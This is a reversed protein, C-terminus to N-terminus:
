ENKKWKELVSQRLRGVYENGRAVAHPDKTPMTRVFELLPAAKAGLRDIANMAAIAAYASTKTPDADHQLTQLARALDDSSGHAALAEAAAIRVSPSPDALAHVLEDHLGAVAPAGRVLAGMAGWYRVGSDSDALLKGLQSQEAAGIRVAGDGGTSRAAPPYRTALEAAAFVRQFPYAEDSRLADRPSQDKSRAHVEAEPLFGTDRIRAALEQQAARLKELIPRHELSSALNHVEDPDTLLDYLEEPPKPALWFQSQADNLRGEDFLRRWVQTTPTEFQYAVRQATSLHPMYNRLYVYRGDTASRVLDYREDMRGRFGYILRQPPTQYEGAFAHGQMWAPPQVGALSLVTPALDVFSVLRDSKGGAQYEKPALHEWAKPFYVVLPVQLGSNGPWRKNRPMGSGHDAYYFVITEEALGAEELDKLRRGAEADVVSIQDYYQAWDQRTEPTDPHYAPVRVKAPDLVAQHPRRRIQSEHSATSNFVAFFPQGAARNRWHAKASSEDWVGPPKTLNYDEKVNNTCYYGAARLLKPFMETGRPLPVESRMHEAGLSPPYMGSIIATRAPACVPACSWARTFIMGRAALADVHPSRALPDGYCGLHPGHDESTLWLINPRQAAHAFALPTVGCLLAVLYACHKM